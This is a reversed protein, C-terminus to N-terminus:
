DAGYNIVETKDLNFKKMTVEKTDPDVFCLFADGPSIDLKDAELEEFKISGQNDVSFSYELFRCARAM